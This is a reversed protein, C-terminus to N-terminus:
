SRGHIVQCTDKYETSSGACIMLDDLIGDKLPSNPHKIDGRYTKNCKEVSYIELKVKFLENSDDGAFDTKGWGTALANKYPLHKETHLCAPRVWTNLDFKDAMKLLAIDHYKKNNYLPHAIIKAVTRQQKHANDTM